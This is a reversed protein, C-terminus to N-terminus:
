PMNMTRADLAQVYNTALTSRELEARAKAHDRGTIAGLVVAAAIGGVVAARHAHVYRPWSASAKAAEIRRWVHARFQTDRPPSVQWDAMAAELHDNSEPVKM